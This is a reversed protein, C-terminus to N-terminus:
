FDPPELLEEASITNRDRLEALKDLQRRHEDHGTGAAQRVYKGFTQENRQGPGLREAV